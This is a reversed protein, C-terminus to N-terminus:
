PSPLLCSPQARYRNKFPVYVMCSRTGDTDECVTECPQYSRTHKRKLAQGTRTDVIRNYAAGDGPGNEDVSHLSTIVGHTVGKAWMGRRAEMAERQAALVDPDPKEGDVAYALGHGQRAMEVALAPCSVLLRKYGDQKGDATCAWEQSAAVQSSSKALEYLEQPTWEGWQHVPGYAELTNFGVLRTGRGKMLGDVFTFSDGDTWRVAIREGNLTIFGRADHKEKKPAKPRTSKKSRGLPAPPSALPTAGLLWALLLAARRM